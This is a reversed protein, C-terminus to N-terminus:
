PGRYIGVDCPTERLIRELAQGHFVRHALSRESAGLLLMQAKLRSAEVLIQHVPDATLLVRRDIAFAPPGLGEALKACVQDLYHHGVRLRQDQRAPSLHPQALPNIALAHLFYLKRLQPALRRLIPELRAFGASHGALPLLLDHPLGLLGPQVVRLALVPCQHSRLLLEAVSGTLFAQRRPKVRTGCILLADQDHPTAQRLARHVSSELLLLEQYYHVAVATCEEALHEFRVKAVSEEIRGDSVHLLLLKHDAEAAAFRIAYRAVWDGYLSGDHALIIM